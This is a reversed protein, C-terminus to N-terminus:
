RRGPVAHLLAKFAPWALAPWMQTHARGHGCVPVSVHPASELSSADIIDLDDWPGLLAYRGLWRIAASHTRVQDAVHRQLTEISKPQSLAEPALQTLPMFNPM